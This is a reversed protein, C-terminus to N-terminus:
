HVTDFLGLFRVSPIERKVSNATREVVFGERHLMSAVELAIAAGRSFGVLDIRLNPNNRRDDRIREFVQEVLRRSGTGFLAGSVGWGLSAAPTGPGSWYGSRGDAYRHAFHYVNSLHKRESYTGDIAYLAM